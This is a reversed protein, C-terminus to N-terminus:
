YISAAHEVGGAGARDQCSGASDGLAEHGRVAVQTGLRRAKGARHHRRTVVRRDSPLADDASVSREGLSRALPLQELCLPDRELALADVHADGPERDVIGLVRLATASAAETAATATMEAHPSSSPPAAPPPSAASSRDVRAVRTSSKTGLATCVPM